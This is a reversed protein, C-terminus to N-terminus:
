AESFAQEVESISVRDLLGLELEEVGGAEAGHRQIDLGEGRLLLVQLFVDGGYFGGREQRGTRGIATEPPERWVYIGLLFDRLREADPSM